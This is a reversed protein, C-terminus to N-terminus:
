LSDKETLAAVKSTTTTATYEGVVLTYGTGDPLAIVDRVALDAGPVGVLTARHRSALARALIAAPGRTTDDVLLTLKPPSSNGGKVVIPEAPEPKKTALFGYNGDPALAALAAKMSAYDGDVNNRLDLTVANMGKIADRLRVAAERDFRVTIAGNKIGFPLVSSEGKTITTTRRAGARTWVVTTDGTTGLILRDKAKSPMLMRETKAKLSKQLKNVAAFPLKNARFDKVAKDFRAIEAPDPVWHGDIESVVDGVKVGARDAPGGPVVMTVVLYPVRSVMVAERPDAMEEEVGPKKPATTGRYGIEVGVGSYRGERANLFARFEQADMFASRPDGLALVMGRVAGSALKQDDSIPEVFERKLLDTMAEYFDGLEIQRAKNQRDALESGTNRTVRAVADTRHRLEAGGAFLAVGLACAGAFLLSPPLSRKPM